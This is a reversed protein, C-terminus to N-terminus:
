ILDESTARFDECCSIQTKKRRRSGRPADLPPPRLLSHKSLGIIQRSLPNSCFLNPRKLLEAFSKCLNDTQKKNTCQDAIANM